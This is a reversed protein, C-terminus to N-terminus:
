FRMSVNVSGGVETPIEDGDEDETEKDSISGAVDVNIYLLSLGAGATYVRGESAEALNERMGARLAINGWHRNILNFENGIALYQKKYDGMITENETLDYDVALKWWDRGLYGGFLDLPYATMGVRAQPSLELTDDPATDPKDFTPTNLNKGVLGLKIGLQDRLDWALGLDIGFDTSKETENDLVDEVQDEIDTDSFINHEIYALEGQMFKFSAGFYLPANFPKMVPTPHAYNLSIENISAGELVLNQDKTDFTDTDSSGPANAVGPLAFNGSTASRALDVLPSIFTKSAEKLTDVTVTDQYPDAKNVRATIARAVTDTTTTDALNFVAGVTDGALAEDLEKKITDVAGKFDGMETDSYEKVTYTTSDGTLFERVVSDGEYNLDVMGQLNINDLNFDTHGALSTYNNGALTWSSGRINVGATLEALIGQGDRNVDRLEKTLRIFNTYAATDSFRSDVISDLEAYDEEFDELDQAENLFDRTSQVQVGAQVGFDIAEQQSMAAPNWLGSNENDANIVGAGGMGRTRAGVMKFSTAEVPLACLGVLMGIALSVFLVDKVARNTFKM